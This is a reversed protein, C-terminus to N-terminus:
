VAKRILLCNDEFVRQAWLSKTSKSTYKNDVYCTTFPTGFYISIQFVVSFMDLYMCWLINFIFSVLVPFFGHRKWMV